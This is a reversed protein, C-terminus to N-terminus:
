FQFFFTLLNKTKTKSFCLFTHKLLRWNKLTGLGPLVFNLCIILLFVKTLKCYLHYFDSVSQGTKGVNGQIGAGGRMGIPGPLGEVFAVIFSWLILEISNFHVWQVRQDLDEVIAKKVMMVEPDQSVPIVLIAM